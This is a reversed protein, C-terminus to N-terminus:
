SGPVSLRETFNLDFKTNTIRLINKAVHPRGFKFVVPGALKTKAHETVHRTLVLRTRAFIYSPNYSRSYGLKTKFKHQM